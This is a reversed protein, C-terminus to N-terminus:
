SRPGLPTGHVAALLLPDTRDLKVARLIVLCLALLMGSVFGGAHDMYADPYDGMLGAGVTALFWMLILWPGLRGFQRFCIVVHMGLIGMIAGSAGIVPRGDYLIHVLGAAVGIVVYAVAYIVNGLQPCVYRGFIWLTVLNGILHIPTMHLWMYGFLGPVSGKELVLASLHRAGPDLRMQVAFMCTALVMIVYNGAPLEVTRTPIIPRARM